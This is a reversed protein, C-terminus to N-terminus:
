HNWTIVHDVPNGYVPNGYQDQGIYTAYQSWSGGQGPDIAYPSVANGNGKVNYATATGNNSVYGHSWGNNNTDYTIPGWHDFVPNAGTTAPQTPTDSKCGSLALSVVVSALVIITRM